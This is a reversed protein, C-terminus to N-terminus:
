FDEVTDGLAFVGDTEALRVHGACVVAFVDVRKGQRTLGDGSVRMYGVWVRQEDKREVPTEAKSSFYLISGLDMPRRSTPVSVMM